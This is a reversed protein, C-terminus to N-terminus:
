TKINLLKLGIIILLSIIIFSSIGFGQYIFWHAVLAGLKGLSNEVIIKSNSIVQAWTGSIKDLDNTWNFLFSIFAILLYATLLLIIIGLKKHNKENKFPATIRSFRFRSKTKSTKLRVNM